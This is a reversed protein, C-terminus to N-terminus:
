VAPKKLINGIYGADCLQEWAEGIWKTILIRRESASFKGDIWKSMFGADSDLQADLRSAILYKMMRGAGADVEFLLILICYM